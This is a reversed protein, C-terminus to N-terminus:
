SEDEGNWSMTRLNGSTLEGDSLRKSQQEENTSTVELGGSPVVPDKLCSKNETM